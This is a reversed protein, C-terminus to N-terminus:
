SYSLDIAQSINPGFITPRINFHVNSFLSNPIQKHQRHLKWVHLFKERGINSTLEGKSKRSSDKQMVWLMSQGPQVLGVFYKKRRLFYHRDFWKRFTWRPNIERAVLRPKWDITNFRSCWRKRDHSHELSCGYQDSCCLDWLWALIDDKLMIIGDYM